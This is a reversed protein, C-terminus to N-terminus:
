LDFKLKFAVIDEAYKDDVIIEFPNNYRYEIKHEELWNEYESLLRYAETSGTGLGGFFDNHMAEKYQVRIM